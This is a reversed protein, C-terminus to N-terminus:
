QKTLKKRLINIAIKKRQRIGEPTIGYTKSIEELTKPEGNENLGYYDRVIGNDREKLGEMTKLLFESYDEEEVIEEPTKADSPIIEILPLKDVDGSINDSLRLTKSTEYALITEIKYPHERKNRQEEVIDRTTFDNDIKSELKQIIKEVEGIQNILNPSLTVCRSQEAIERLIAQKIYWKAYTILKCGKTYDFRGIAKILGINGAEILDETLLANDTREIYDICREFEKLIGPVYRLNHKILKERAGLDNEEKLRIFLNKEEEKSLPPFKSIERYYIALSKRM